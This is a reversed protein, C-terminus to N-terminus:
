VQMNFLPYLPEKNADLDRNWEVLSVGPPVRPRVTEILHSEVGFKSISRCTQARLVLCQELRALSTPRGQRLALTHLNPFPHSLPQTVQGVFPLDAPTPALTTAVIGWEINTQLITTSALAWGLSYLVMAPIRLIKPHTAQNLHVLRLAPYGDLAHSHDAIHASAAGSTASLSVALTHLLPAHLIALFPRISTACVNFLNLTNLSPLTTREAPLPNDGGLGSLLLHTLNQFQFVPTIPEAEQEDPHCELYLRQLGKCSVRILQLIHLRLYRLNPTSLSLGIALSANVHTPDGCPLFSLSVLNDFACNAFCTHLISLDCGQIDIVHWRHQNAQLIDSFQTLDDHHFLEMSLVLPAGTAYAIRARIEDPNFYAGRRVIHHWLFPTSLVLRQFSRSVLRFPRPDPTNTACDHAHHLILRWVDEYLLGLGQTYQYFM